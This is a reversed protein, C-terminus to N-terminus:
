YMLWLIDTTVALRWYTCPLGTHRKGITEFSALFFHIKLLVRNMLMVQNTEVTFFFIGASELDLHCGMCGYTMNGVQQETGQKLSIINGFIILLEKSHSFWSSHLLSTNFYRHCLEKRKTQSFSYKFWMFSTSYLLGMKFM